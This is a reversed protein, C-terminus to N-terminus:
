PINLPFSTFKLKLGLKRYCENAPKGNLIGILAVAHCAEVGFSHERASELALKAIRMASAKEGKIAKLEAETLLCYIRGRPDKTKTFLREAEKLARASDALKGMFEYTKSVSWLTYSSSVIDGIREYLKLAKNFNILSGKWDGEMRRANGVGCYSYALGFPDKLRLFLKNADSYYKLSQKYLGKVRTAGGLGNLCFGAAHEDELGKFRRYADKFTEIAKDIDGKIRYTGAKAWNLFALAEDDKNKSYVRESNLLLKLATKWDGRARLSLALSVASDAEKTGDRLDKASKIAAEYNSIASGFDGLMRYVHGALLHAQFQEEGTLSSKLAARLLKIAERYRAKERLLDAKELKDKISTM